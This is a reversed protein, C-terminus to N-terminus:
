SEKFYIKAHETGPYPGQKVEFIKTKELMEFGHGMSIQVLTDGSNLIVSDIVEGDITYFTAKVKGSIIYLVEQVKDVVKTNSIHIHPTLAVGASKNHYGVQLPNNEDTVFELNEVKHHARVVIAVLENLHKIEFKTNAKTM